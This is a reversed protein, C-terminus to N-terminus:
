IASNPIVQDRFAYSAIGAGLEIVLILALVCIKKTGGVKVEPLKAAGHAVLAFIVENSLGMM